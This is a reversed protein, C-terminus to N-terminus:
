VRSERYSLGPRDRRKSNPSLTTAELSSSGDSNFNETSDNQGDEEDVSGQEQQEEEDDQSGEYYEKDDSVDEDLSDEGDNEDNDDNDAYEGEEDEEEGEEEEDENEEFGEDDDWEDEEEEEQDDEEDDDEDDEIGDEWEKPFDEFPGNEEVDIQGNDIPDHHPPDNNESLRELCTGWFHDRASFFNGYPCIDVLCGVLSPSNDCICRFDDHNFECWRAIVQVCSLFCAPPTALAISILSLLPFLAKFLM